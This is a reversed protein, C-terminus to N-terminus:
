EVFKEDIAKKLAIVLPDTPVWTDWEHYYQNMLKIKPDDSEAFTFPADDDEFEIEEEDSDKEEIEQTEIEQVTEELDDHNWFEHAEYMLAIKVDQPTVVTRNAEKVYFAAGQFAKIILTLLLTNARAMFDPDPEQSEVVNSFGTRMPPIDM